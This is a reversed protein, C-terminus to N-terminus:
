RNEKYQQLNGLATTAAAQPARIKAAGQSLGGLAQLGTGATNAVTQATAGLAGRSRPRGRAILDGLEDVKRLQLGQALNRAGGSGARLAAATSLDGTGASIVSPLRSGIMSLLETPLGDAAASKIADIEAPTYGKVKGERIKKLLTTMASKLATRPQQRM